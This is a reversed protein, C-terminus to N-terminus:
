NVDRSTLLVSIDVAQAKTAAMSPMHSRAIASLDAGNQRALAAATAWKQAVEGPKYKGEREM